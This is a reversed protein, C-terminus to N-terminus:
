VSERLYKTQLWQNILQANTRLMMTSIASCILLLSEGAFKIRRAANTLVHHVVQEKYLRIIECTQSPDTNHHLTFYMVLCVRQSTMGFTGLLKGQECNYHMEETKAPLIFLIKTQIQRCPLEHLLNNTNLFM